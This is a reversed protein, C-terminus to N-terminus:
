TPILEPESDPGDVPGLVSAVVARAPGAGAAREDCAWGFVAIDTGTTGRHEGPGSARQAVGATRCGRTPTAPSRWGCPTHVRHPCRTALAAPAQRLMAHEPRDAATRLRRVQEDFPLDLGGNPPLEDSEDIVARSITPTVPDQRYRPATGQPPYGHPETRVRRPLVDSGTEAGLILRTRLRGAMPESQDIVRQRLNRMVESGSWM